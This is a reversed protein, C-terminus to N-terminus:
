EDAADSTYLLCPEFVVENRAIAEAFRVSAWANEDKSEKAVKILDDVVADSGRFPLGNDALYRVAVRYWHQHTYTWCHPCNFSNLTVSPPVFNQAM